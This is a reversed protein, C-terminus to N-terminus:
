REFSPYPKLNIFLCVEKTTKNGKKPHELAKSNLSQNKRCRNGKIKIPKHFTVTTTSIKSLNNHCPLEKTKHRM